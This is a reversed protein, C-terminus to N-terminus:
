PETIFVTCTAGITNTCNSGTDRVQIAWTDAGTVVVPSALTQDCAAQNTSVCDTAEAGAGNYANFTLQCSADATQNCVIRTITLDANMGVAFYTGCAGSAGM